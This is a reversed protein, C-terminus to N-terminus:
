LLSIHASQSALHNIKELHFRIFEFCNFNVAWDIAASQLIIKHAMCSSNSGGLITGMQGPQMEFDGTAM